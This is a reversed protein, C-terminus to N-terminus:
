FGVPVSKRFPEGNLGAELHIGDGLKELCFCQCRNGDFDMKLSGLDLAGVIVRGREGFSIHRRIGALSEGFELNLAEVISNRRHCLGM